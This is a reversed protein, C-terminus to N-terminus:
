SPVKVGHAQAIKNLKNKRERWTVKSLGQRQRITDQDVGAKLDRLAATWRLNEFSLLGAPLKAKYGVDRLIYELNRATCTFLTETPTYQSMYADLTALFDASLPLNREKNQHNPNKYRIQLMPEEEYREIHAPEIAMAEGKKIGTNILMLLLLHPRADQKGKNGKTHWKETVALAANLQKETPITPVPSTVSKQIVNAAPDIMLVDIKALWKFFVKLTTVRRSYTKDSCPKDREFKMWYLFKNLDDTGIAGIATDDGIHHALLRMDSMFAKVSHISFGEASMHQEFLPMAVALTTNTNIILNPQKSKSM